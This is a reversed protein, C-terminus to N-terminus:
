TSREWVTARLDMTESLGRPSTSVDALQLADLIVYSCPGDTILNTLLHMLGRVRDSRRSSQQGSRGDPQLFPALSVQHLYSPLLLPTM